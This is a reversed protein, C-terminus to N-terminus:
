SYTFICHENADASIFSRAHLIIDNGICWFRGPGLRLLASRRLRKKLSTPKKVAFAWDLWPMLAEFDGGQVTAGFCFSFGVPADRYGAIVYAVCDEDLISTMAKILAQPADEASISPMNLANVVAGNVLYDALQEAVQIAVNVQAEDTSADLHPTSILKENGFM